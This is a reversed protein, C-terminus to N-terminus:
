PLNTCKVINYNPNNTAIETCRPTTEYELEDSLEKERAWVEDLWVNFTSWDGILQALYTDAVNIQADSPEGSKYCLKRAVGDVKRLYENFQSRYKGLENWANWMGYIEWYLPALLQEYTAALVLAKDVDNGWNEVKPSNLTVYSAFDSGNVGDVTMGPMVYNDQWVEGKKRTIVPKCGEALFSYLSTNFAKQQMRLAEVEPDVKVETAFLEKEVSVKEANNQSEDVIVYIIWSVFLAILGITAKKNFKLSQVSAELSNQFQSVSSDDSIDLKQEKSNEEEPGALKVEVSYTEEQGTAETNQLFKSDKQVVQGCSACHKWHVQIETGCNTCFSSHTSM